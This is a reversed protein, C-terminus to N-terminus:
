CLSLTNRIKSILPIILRKLVLHGFLRDNFFLPNFYYVAPEYNKSLLASFNFKHMDFPTRDEWNVMCQCSLIESLESDTDYWNKYLCLYFSQIGRVQWHYESCIDTFEGLTRCETLKQDLPNFLNWNDYEKKQRANKLETTYIRRDVGCTCSTGCIIEGQPPAFLFLAFVAFLCSPDPLFTSRCAASCSARRTSEGAPLWDPLLAVARARTARATAGNSNM